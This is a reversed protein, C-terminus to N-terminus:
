WHESVVQAHHGDATVLIERPAARLARPPIALVIWSGDDDSPVATVTFMADPDDAWDAEGQMTERARELVEAESPIAADLHVRRADTTDCATLLVAFLLPSAISM